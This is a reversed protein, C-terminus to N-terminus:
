LQHGEGLYNDKIILQVNKASIASELDSHPDKLVFTERDQRRFLRYALNFEAYIAPIQSASIIVGDNPMIGSTVASLTSAFTPAPSINRQCPKVIRNGVGLKRQLINSAEIRM